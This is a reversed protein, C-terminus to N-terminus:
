QQIKELRNIEIIWEEKKDAYKDNNLMSRLFSAAEINKGLEELIAAKLEISKVNEKLKISDEAYVIADAFKRTMYLYIAMNTIVKEYNDGSTINENKLKRLATLNVEVSEEYREQEYFSAAKDLLEDVSFVMLEKQKDTLEPDVEKVPEVVPEVNQIEQKEEVINVSITKEGAVKLVFFYYYGAGAFLIILFFITLYINMRSAKESKGVPEVEEFHEDMISKLEIDDHISEVIETKKEADDGGPLEEEFAIDSVDFMAPRAASEIIIGVAPDITDKQSLVPPPVITKGMDYHQNKAPRKESFEEIASEFDDSGQDTDKKLWKPEPPLFYSADKKKVTVVDLEILKKLYSATLKRDLDTKEIIDSLKSGDPGINKIISAIRDPFKNITNMFQGFDVFLRSDMPPMENLESTYDDLWNAANVVLRDHPIKINRQVNVAKYSIVFNGDLWSLLKYLEEIGNKNEGTGTEIRVASGNLFYINATEGTSSSFLVVGSSNNEAIINLVDILSISSLDGKFEKSEKSSGLMENFNVQDFFDKIRNILVRILVPKMFFAEAGMEHALIKDEVVKSNSLFIFPINRTEPNMKVRKLLDVGTLEPLVMESIILHPKFERVIKLANVSSSLTKVEYNEKKLKLDLVATVQEDSDVILIKRAMIRRKLVM